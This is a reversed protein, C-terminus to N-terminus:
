LPDAVWGGEAEFVDGIAKAVRLLKRDTYRPGVATLGIPLGNAGEFGVLNIAPVHLITWMSCFSMDGTNELGLPAEDVVSPTIIIDYNRALEDFAPRLRAVNDYADLLQRHTLKRSNDVYGQISEHLKDKDLLYQGLFSTQGEGVLVDAHWDLVRSFDGPLEVDDVQAGHATLIKQAKAMADITGQGAKPWNHTKCFGIKAGQLKFAESSAVEADNLRFAAALVEFDDVSRGFFGLTDLSPSWQALGERSIAGHTPKFGYGGNFSAPRVISGGTQTGLAIPVQYDGVAAGSGSSSGGPTRKSDRANRTLNQHWNGQKSSAFETTSTKGFILAGQARLTIICNADIAIPTESEYLRSNYQTPMDKTLIVDKVAIPLGFLPGRESASLGDLEKAQQLILSPEIWVWAKVEPDRAQVRELLSKVYDTVTLKDERLLPLAEAATLRWPAQLSM